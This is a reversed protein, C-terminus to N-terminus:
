NYCELHSELFNNEKEKFQIHKDNFTVITKNICKQINKRGFQPNFLYFRKMKKLLQKRSDIQKNENMSFKSTLYLYLYPKMIEHLKDKPFEEHVEIRRNYESLMKKIYGCVDTEPSNYVFSKIAYERIINENEDIFVQLDFNSLFFQHIIMSLKISTSKLFFYMSYLNSKNFPINNYPNKCVLPESFFFPSHSLAANLIGNIEIPTFLYIKKNQLLQFVNKHSISIPTLGLNSTNYIQAKKLKYLYAIRSFAHYIKQTSYFINLCKTRMKDSYFINNILQNLIEYKIISYKKYKLTNLKDNDRAVLVSNITFYIYFHEMNKNQFFKNWIEYSNEINPSFNFINTNDIEKQILYIFTNM